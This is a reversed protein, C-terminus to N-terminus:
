NPTPIRKHENPTMTPMQIKFSDERSAFWTVLNKIIFLQSPTASGSLNSGVQNSFTGGPWYKHELRPAVVYAVGENLLFNKEAKLM